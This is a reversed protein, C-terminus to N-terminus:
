DLTITDDLPILFTDRGIHYIVRKLKQMFLEYKNQSLSEDLGEESGKVIGRLPVKLVHRKGYMPLRGLMLAIIKWFRVM